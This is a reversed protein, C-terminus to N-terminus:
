ITTIGGPFTANMQREAERERLMELLGKLRNREAEIALRTDDAMPTLPQAPRFGPPQNAYGLLCDVRFVTLGRVPDYAAVSRMAVGLDPDYNNSTYNVGLPMQQKAFLPVAGVGWGREIGDALGLCAPTIHRISYEDLSLRLLDNPDYHWERSYVRDVFVTESREIMGTFERAFDMGTLSMSSPQRFRVQDGMKMGDNPGDEILQTEGFPELLRGLKLLAEMSIMWTNLAM